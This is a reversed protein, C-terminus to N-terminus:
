TGEDKGELQAKLAALAAFPSDPDARKEARPARGSSKHRQGDTPRKRPKQTRAKRSNSAEGSDSANEAGAHQRAPQPKAVSRDRRPKPRDRRGPRWIEIFAPEEPPKDDSADGDPLSTTEAPEANVEPGSSSGAVASSAAADGGAEPTTEDTGDPALVGVKDDIAIAEAEQAPPIQGDSAIPSQDAVDSQPQSEASGNGTSPNEGADSSSPAASPAPRREMRYGLARLVSSFDEGSCGLLSTMSVTVTFGNGPAAGDPPEPNDPTQRWAILPRILDALRELIDIRVARSGAISYGVIRYLPAPITTDVALSTRGSAALGALDVLGPQDLGGNKLAWLTAL